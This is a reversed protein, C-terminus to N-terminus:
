LLSGMLCECVHACVCVCLERVVGMALYKVTAARWWWQQGCLVLGNSHHLGSVGESNLGHDRFAGPLIDGPWVVPSGGGSYMLQTQHMCVCRACQRSWQPHTLKRHGCGCCMGEWLVLNPAKLFTIHYQLPEGTTSHSGCQTASLAHTCAKHLACQSVQAPQGILNCHECSM